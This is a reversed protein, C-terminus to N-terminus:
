VGARLLLGRGLLRAGLGLLSVAVRYRGLDHREHLEPLRLVVVLIVECLMGVLSIAGDDDARLDVLELVHKLRVLLRPRRARSPGDASTATPIWRARSRGSAASSTRWSM